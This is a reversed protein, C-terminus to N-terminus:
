RLGSAEQKLYEYQEEMSMDEYAKTGSGSARPTGGQPTPNTLAELEKVKTRLEGLEKEMAPVRVSTTEANAIRACHYVFDPMKSYAPNQATIAKFVEAVQKQLESDKKGFEPFDTVAKGIWQKQDVVFKEQRQKDNPPPNKKLHEASATASQADRDLFKAEDRLKEADEVKGDNEATIAEARKVKANDSCQRAFAEYKEPTPTSNSREAQFAQVDANFKAIAGQLDTNAKTKAAELEDKAANLEKWTVVRRAFDKAYKSGQAQALYKDFKTREEQSLKLPEEVPTKDRKVFKGQADRKPKGADDVDLEKGEKEAEAKATEVEQKEAETQTDPKDDSKPAAENGKDGAPAREGAKLTDGSGSGSELAKFAEAQEAEMADLQKAEAEQEPTLTPTENAM